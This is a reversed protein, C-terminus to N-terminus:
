NEVSVSLVSGFCLSAVERDEKLIKLYMDEKKLETINSFDGYFIDKGNYTLFVSVQNEYTRVFIKLDFEDKSIKYVINGDGINDTLSEGESLFLELLDLEDYKM